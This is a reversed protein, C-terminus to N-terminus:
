LGSSEIWEFTIDFSGGTVTTSNLNVALQQATGRLVISQGMGPRWIYMDAAGATAPALCAIKASDYNGVTSNVTPNATYTLPASVAAGNGTDNKVATMAGSTGGTDATTRQILLLDVIGATTQTCSVKVGTVIVTNTANGPLVAIDTATAASALGVKNAKYSTVNTPMTSTYLVRNLDTLLAADRGATGAAPLQAQQIAPLNAVRNAGAAAGNDSLAGAVNLPTTLNPQDTALVFRQTGASKNGSNTDTTTGGVQALNQNLPTTLNPQDTALVFRQTGASKNGSNTDVVTGAIRQLDTNLLGSADLPLPATPQVCLATTFPTVTGSGTIQTGLLLRLNTAGSLMVLFAQNTSPVFTYPNTLQAGTSPNLVQAVPVSVWNTSDYSIQFTAAGATITTTQNLQVLAATASIGTLLVQTANLGTGSNWVTGSAPTAPCGLQGAGSIQGRAPAASLLLILPLLLLLRKTM